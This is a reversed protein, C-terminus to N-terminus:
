ATRDRPLDVLPFTPKRDWQWDLHMIDTAALLQPVASLAMNGPYSTEPNRPTLCLGKAPWLGRDLHLQLANLVKSPM